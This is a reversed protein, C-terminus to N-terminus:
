NWAVASESREDSVMGPLMQFPLEEENMDKSLEEFPVCKANYKVLLMQFEEASVVEKGAADNIESGWMNGGAQMSALMGGSSPIAMTGITDSMGWEKVMAQAVQQVQQIDNSAGTTVNDEGYIGM